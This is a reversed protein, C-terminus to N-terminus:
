LHAAMTLNLFHWQKQSQMTCKQRVYVDDHCCERRGGSLCSPTFTSVSGERGPPSHYKRARPAAALTLGAAPLKCDRFSRHESM